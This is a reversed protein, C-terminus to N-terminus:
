LKPGQSPESRHIRRLLWAVYGYTAWIGGLVLGLLAVLEPVPRPSIFGPQPSLARLVDPGPRIRPPGPSRAGVTLIAGVGEVDGSEALVETAWTGAPLRIRAQGSADTPQEALTLWGFATRLKFVVSAEPVPAGEADTVLATIWQAGDPGAALKLTVRAPEGAWTPLVFLLALAGLCFGRLCTSM